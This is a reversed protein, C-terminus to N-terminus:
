GNDQTKMDDSDVGGDDSVDEQLNQKDRKKKNVKTAITKGFVMAALSLLSSCLVRLFEASILVYMNITM